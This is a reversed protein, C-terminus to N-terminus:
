IDGKWLKLCLNILNQNSFSHCTQWTKRERDKNQKDNIFKLCFFKMIKFYVKENITTSIFYFLLVISISQEDVKFMTFVFTNM